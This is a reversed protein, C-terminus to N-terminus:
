FKLSRKTQFLIISKAHVLICCDVALNELNYMYLHFAFSSLCSFILLSVLLSDLHFVHAASHICITTIRIHQQM